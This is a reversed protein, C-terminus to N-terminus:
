TVEPQKPSFQREMFRVTYDVISKCSHIEKNETFGSPPFSQHAFKEVLKELTVGSQLCLSISIAWMKCFGVLTEDADNLCFFLEAPRGDPFLGITIYIHLRKVKGSPKRYQLVLKHTISERKDPLRERM